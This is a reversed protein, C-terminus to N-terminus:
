GPKVGGGREEEEAAGLHLGTLQQTSPKHTSSCTHLVQVQHEPQTTPDEVQEGPVCDGAPGFVLARQAGTVEVPHKLSPHTEGRDQKIFIDEESIGHQRALTKVDEVLSDRM